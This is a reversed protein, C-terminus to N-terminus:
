IETDKELPKLNLWYSYRLTCKLWTRQLYSTLSQFSGRRFTILRLIIVSIILFRSIGQKLTHVIQKKFRHTIGTGNSLGQLKKLFFCGLPYIKDTPMKELEKAVEEIKEHSREKLCLVAILKPLIEILEAESSKNNLINKSVEIMDWYEAATCDEIRKHIKYSEKNKERYIDTVIEGNPELGLFGLQRNINQYLKPSRAKKWDEPTTGELFLGYVNAEDAEGDEVMRKYKAFKYFPVEGWDDPASFGKTVKDYVYRLYNM